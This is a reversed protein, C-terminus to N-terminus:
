RRKNKVAERLGSRLIDSCNDMSLVNMLEGEIDENVEESDRCLHVFSSHIIFSYTLYM